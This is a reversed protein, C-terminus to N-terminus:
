HTVTIKVTRVGESTSVKVFYVGVKFSTVDIKTTKADVNKNNYVTQGVFNIVEMSNITYDSKVNVLETAPNPYIMIQGNGLENVGTAPFHVTITDSSAECLVTQDASNKFLTTVYYKWFSALPTTSPHVDLYTTATVPSANIKSFAGTGSDGTRYVNYGSLISSDSTATKLPGMTMYSHSDGSVHAQNAKADSKVGAPMIAGPVLEVSKMDGSVLATVRELFVAPNAGLTSAKAWVGTASQNWGLDQAAYPGNEDSALYYSQAPLNNFKVMAFFEGTFPVDNIPVDIWTNVPGASF